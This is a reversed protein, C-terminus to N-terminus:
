SQVGKWALISVHGKKGSRLVMYVRQGAAQIEVFSDESTLLNNFYTQIEWNESFILADSPLVPRRSVVVPDDLIYGADILGNWLRRLQTDSDLIESDFVFPLLSSEILVDAQSGNLSEIIGLADDDAIGPRFGACSALLALVTVLFLPKFYKM